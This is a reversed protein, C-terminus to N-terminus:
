LYMVLLETVVTHDGPGRIKTCFSEDMAVDQRHVGEEGLSGLHSSHM